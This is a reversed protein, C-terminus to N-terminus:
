NHDGPTWFVKSITRSWNDWGLSDNFDPSNENVWQKFQDPNNFQKDVKGDNNSDVEASVFKGNKVNVVVDPKGDYNTDATVKTDSEKVQQYTVDPKGDKNVDVSKSLPVWCGAGLCFFPVLCILLGNIIRHM